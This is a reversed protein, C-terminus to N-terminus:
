DRRESRDVIIIEDNRDYGWNWHDIKKHNHDWIIDKIYIYYAADYIMSWDIMYLQKVNYRTCNTNMYWLYMSLIISHFFLVTSM